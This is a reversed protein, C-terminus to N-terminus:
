NATKVAQNEHFKKKLLDWIKLLVIFVLIVAVTFAAMLLCSTKYSEGPFFTLVIKRAAIHNLYLTLSAPAAFKLWNFRFLKGVYSKGSFTMAVALVFFLFAPFVSKAKSLDSSFWVFGFILFCLVEIATIFKSYPKSSKKNKVYKSILYAVAGFSLGCFGLIVGGTFIGYFRTRGVFPSDQNFMWGYTSLALCPAIVYFYLNKNKALLYSLPLMCILMASIYWAASNVEINFIGCLNLCFVEPMIQSLLQLIVEPTGLYVYSIILVITGILLATWYKTSLNFFKKTVYGLAQKAPNLETETKDFSNAMLMGSIVFFCFVSVWGLCGLWSVTVHKTNEGVFQTTHSLFVIMALLLKLVDLQYNRAPKGAAEIEAM